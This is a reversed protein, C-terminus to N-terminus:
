KSPSSVYVAQYYQAKGAKEVLRYDTEPLKKAAELTIPKYSLILKNGDNIFEIFEDLSAIKAEVFEPPVKSVTTQRITGSVDVLQPNKVCFFTTVKISEGVLYKDATLFKFEDQGRTAIYGGDTKAKIRTNALLCITGQMKEVVTSTFAIERSEVAQTVFFPKPSYIRGNEDFNTEIINSLSAGTRYLNKGFLAFNSRVWAEPVVKGLYQATISRSVPQSAVAEILPEDAANARGTVGFLIALTIFLTAPKNM